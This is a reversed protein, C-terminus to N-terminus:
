GRGKGETKEPNKSSRESEKRGGEVTEEENERTKAPFCAKEVSRKKERNDLVVKSRKGECGIPLKTHCSQARKTEIVALTQANNEENVALAVRIKKEISVTQDPKQAM